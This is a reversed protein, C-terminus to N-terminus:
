EEPEEQFENLRCRFHIVNLVNILVIALFFGAFNFKDMVSITQVTEINDIITTVNYEMGYNQVDHRVDALLFLFSAGLMILSIWNFWFIIKLDGKSNWM